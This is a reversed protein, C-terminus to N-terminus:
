PYEVAIAGGVYGQTSSFNSNVISLFIPAEDVDEGAFIAGGTGAFGGDFM